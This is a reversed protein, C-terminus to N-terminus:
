HLLNLFSPFPTGPRPLSLISSYSQHLNFYRCQNDVLPGIRDLKGDSHKATVLVEEHYPFMQEWVKQNCWDQFTLYSQARLTLVFHKRYFLSIVHSIYIQCVDNGFDSGEEEHKLCGLVSEITPVFSEPYLFCMCVYAIYSYLSASVRFSSFVIRWMSNCRGEKRKLFLMLLGVQM